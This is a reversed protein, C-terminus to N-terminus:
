FRGLEKLALRILDETKYSINDKSSIKSLTRKAEVPNYGLATLAQLADDAADPVSPYSVAVDIAGKTEMKSVKDKLEIIVRQATKKGVGPIRTLVDVQEHIVAQIFSPGPMASLVALGVKPGIGSVQILLEFIELDSEKLFGYLQMADERVNMYTHVIIEDNKDNAIGLVPTPVYVKYGVGGVDIVVYDSGSGVPKGRLFAIM